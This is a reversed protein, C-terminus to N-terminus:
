SNLLMGLTLIGKSKFMDSDESGYCFSKFYLKLFQKQMELFQAPSSVDEAEEFM